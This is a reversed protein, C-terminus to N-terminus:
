NLEAKTRDPLDACCSMLDVIRLFVSLLSKIIKNKIKSLKM